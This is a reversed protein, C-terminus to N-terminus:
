RGGKAASEREWNQVLVLHQTSPDGGGVPRTFLLRLGDATVDFDTLDRGRTDFLPTIAGLPPNQSPDVRATAMGRNTPGSGALFFLEGSDRAWRPRFGGGSGVQWQGKGDPFRALFVDVQGLNDTQYAVLRGDPSIRADAVNPAPVQPLLPGLSGLSGDPLVPGLKLSGHGREDVIRIASRGDPALMVNCNLSVISAPPAFPRQGGSGDAHISLVRGQMGGPELEIYALTSSSAMWEPSVERLPGFTLRTETDSAVDLVWVDENDGHSATFAIRRGDPSLRARGLGRHPKGLAAIDKGARDVWVLERTVSNGSGEVYLLSGDDAASITVAGAAVLIPPGTARHHALDFPASWAGPTAGVRLFLLRGSSTLTPMDDPSNGFEGPIGIQRKGDFITLARKVTGASDRESKWHTVYLLDGNPLWTPCHFDIQTDPDIEILVSPNGGLAPVQYMRDRWVSFAIVGRASWTVGILKGTAPVECVASPAGGALGVRWLQKRDGYVLEQSDPSWAFAMPEQLDAVARPALQDLDRVWLQNASAYAFRSGDPSLRPTVPWDFVLDKALLDFKRVLGSRTGPGLRMTAFVALAAVALVAAAAFWWPVGGSRTRPPAASDEPQSPAALLIRAEGIDRLRERADKRLCRELLARVRAPTAAPLRSWDPETKLIHAVLDSSTEGAFVRRGTLCEFLVCGFSWIDTRKDVPRGRAQEPSMYAATGLVIGAQTPNYTMTPSASAGPDVAAPESAGSKALGFDLVKVAGVPTLMVNAPKLDRHVVGNEHAAEVGTAIQRAIDIAEDVPLPGRVLRDALTEGEVLELVLYRAGDVEELGHIGAINPHSLSALLRAEREFRALREPDRSFEAPLAKIAVDRGLRPDRARYVEGMGGAGLPAVIEYPGVRTGASLPM